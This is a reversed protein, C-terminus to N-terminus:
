CSMWGFETCTCSNLYYVRMRSRNNTVLPSVCWCTWGRMVSQPLLLNVSSMLQNQQKERAAKHCFTGCISDPFSNIMDNTLFEEFVLLSFLRWLLTGVAPQSSRRWMQATCVNFEGLSSSLLTPRLWSCWCCGSAEWRPQTDLRIRPWM